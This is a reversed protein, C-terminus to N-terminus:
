ILVTFIFDARLLLPHVFVYTLGTFGSVARSKSDIYTTSHPIDLIKLYSARWFCIRLLM